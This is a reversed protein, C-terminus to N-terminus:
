AHQNRSLPGLTDLQKAGDLGYHDAFDVKWLAHEVVERDERRYPQSTTSGAGLLM